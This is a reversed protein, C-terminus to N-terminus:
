LPFGEFSGYIQMLNSGGLIPLRIIVVTQHCSGVKQPSVIPNTCAKHRPFEM